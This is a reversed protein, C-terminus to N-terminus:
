FDDADDDRTAFLFREWEERVRPDSEIERMFREHRVADIVEIMAESEEMPTDLEAMLRALSAPDPIARDFASVCM